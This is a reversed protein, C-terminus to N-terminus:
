ARDTGDGVRAETDLSGGADRVRRRVIALGVHGGAVSELTEAIGVGDDRVELEIRDDTVAVTVAITTPRAHKAANVVLEQAVPLLISDTLRPDDTPGDM